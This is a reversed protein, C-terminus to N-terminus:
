PNCDQVLLGQESSLMMINGVIGMVINGVGVRAGSEDALMIDVVVRVREGGGIQLSSESALLSLVFENGVPGTQTPQLDLGGSECRFAVCWAAVCWAGLGQRWSVLWLQAALFCSMEMMVIELARVITREFKWMCLKIRWALVHHVLNLLKGDLENLWISFM